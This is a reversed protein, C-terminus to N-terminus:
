KPVILAKDLKEELRILAASIIIFTKDANKTYQDFEAKSVKSEIAKTNHKVDSGISGWAILSPALAGVLLGVILRWWGNLGNKEKDSSNNDVM